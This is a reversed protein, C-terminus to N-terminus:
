LSFTQCDLLFLMPVFCRLSCPVLSPCLGIYLVFIVCYDCSQPEKIEIGRKVQMLECDHLPAHIGESTVEFDIPSDHVRSIM